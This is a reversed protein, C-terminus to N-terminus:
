RWEKILDKKKEIENRRWKERGLLRQFLKSTSGLHVYTSLLVCSIKVQKIDSKRVSNHGIYISIKKRKPKLIQFEVLTEFNKSIRKSM